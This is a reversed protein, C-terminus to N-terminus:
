PVKTWTASYGTPGSEPAITTASKLKSPAGSRAMALEPLTATRIFTELLPILARVVVWSVKEGGATAPSVNFNVADTVPFFPSGVPVIVNLSSPVEKAVAANAEP